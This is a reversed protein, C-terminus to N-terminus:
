PLPLYVHFITGKEVRDEVEIRGGHEVVIKQAIPLGLGVGRNKTSFLPDWINELEGQPIGAGSDAFSIRLFDGDLTTSITLDGGGELAEVGNRLINAFAKTLKERDASITASEAQYDTSVTVGEPLQDKRFSAIAGDLVSHADIM